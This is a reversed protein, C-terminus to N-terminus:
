DGDLWLVREITFLVRRAEKNERLEKELRPLLLVVVEDAVDEKRSLNPRDLVFDFDASSCDIAELLFKLLVCDSVGDVALRESSHINGRRQSSLM